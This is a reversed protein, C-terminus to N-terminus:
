IFKTLLARLNTFFKQNILIPITCFLYLMKPLLVMKFFAIRGVTAMGLKCLSELKKTLKDLLDKFNLFIIQTTSPPM